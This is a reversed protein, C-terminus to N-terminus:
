EEENVREIYSASKELIEELRDGQGTMYLYGILTEFGTARKYDVAVANKPIHSSKSNRGRKYFYIEDDSLEMELGEMIESQSAAMVYKVARKHLEKTSLNRNSILIRERIFLEFVCDGVYALTLPQLLRAEKIGIKEKM